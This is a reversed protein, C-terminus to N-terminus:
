LEQKLAAVVHHIVSGWDGWARQRFLRMTPYWPSDDRGLMWRWDPAYPLLLWVRKGMAGALHGVATDVSIVLDLNGIMAATDSFDSLATTLDVCSIPLPMTSEQLGTRKVLSFYRVGNIAGLPGLEAPSISRRRDNVHKPNGAWAIGVRLTGPLKELTGAWRDVLPPDPNLYPVSAPINALTTGFVHPLSLLPCHLDFRPLPQIDGVVHDVGAQGNFLRVLEPHCQVIIRGGRDRVLPAYRIFQIADGFGQEAHLLVTKGELPEGRWQPESFQRDCGLTAIRRRSEMAPWGREFDGALLLTTGMNWWAEPLEPWKALVQRYHSIAEGLRGSDKLAVGLNIWPDKYDARIEIAHRYSAIAEDFRGQAGLTMALNNHAEAFQPRLAITERFAKETPEDLGQDQRMRGLNYWAEPYNPCLAIAQLCADVAEDLRAAEQLAVGLNNFAEPSNPSLEIARRYPEVAEAFRRETMLTNALEIYPEVFGPQLVIAQRFNEIGGKVNGASVQAGGARSLMRALNMRIDPSDRKLGLAHQLEGIAEDFLGQAALAGGLNAHFAWSGPEIAVARRLLESAGRADGTQFRIQALGEIAGLYAPSDTLLKAYLSAAETLEGGRHLQVARDFAAQVDM